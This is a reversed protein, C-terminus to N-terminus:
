IEIGLPDAEELSLRVRRITRAAFEVRETFSLEDILGHDYLYNDDDEPEREEDAMEDRLAYLAAELTWRADMLWFANHDSWTKWQDEDHIDHHTTM